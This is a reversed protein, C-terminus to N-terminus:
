RAPQGKTGLLARYCDITGAACADWSFQKARILGKQKLSQRLTEDEILQQMCDTIAAVDTPSVCLAADGAVEPLSSTNSTIVPVQAAFAELVPLGFGEALSPFVLGRALKLIGLLDQDSVQQLWRIAGSATDQEIMRVVEECKWGARGVIVLPFQARQAATLSRHAEISAKVNKRPQLTGVSIFFADPLGYTLRVKAFVEPTIDSFWRRDVGLSVVDIKNPSVGAWTVLESKSYQSITIVRDAWQIARLWLANKISRFSGSSWEPHSLPIADMLTAIVPTSLCKPIHHDTAHILDVSSDIQGIGTFPRGSLASWAAARPYASLTYSHSNHHPSVARPHNSPLPVGFSFPTCVVDSGVAFRTLLEDTYHSIGDHAGGTQAKALATVGFGVRIV